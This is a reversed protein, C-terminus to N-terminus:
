QRLQVLHAQALCRINTVNRYCPGQFLVGLCNQVKQLLRTLPLWSLCALGCWQERGKVENCAGHITLFSHEKCDTNHRWVPSLWSWLWLRKGPNLEKLLQIEPVGQTYKKLNPEFKWKFDLILFNLKLPWIDSHGWSVSSNPQLGLSWVGIKVCNWM